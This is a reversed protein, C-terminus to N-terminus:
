RSKSVGIDLEGSRHFVVVVVVRVEGGKGEEASKERLELRSHASADERKDLRGFSSVAIGGISFVSDRLRLNLFDESSQIPFFPTRVDDLEKQVPGM